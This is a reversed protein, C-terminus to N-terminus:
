PVEPEVLAEDVYCWLWDEGPEKSRAIPHAAEDAHKHLLRLLRGPRVDHLDEPPGVHRGHSHVARLGRLDLGGRTNPGRARMAPGFSRATEPHRVQHEVSSEDEEWLPDVM